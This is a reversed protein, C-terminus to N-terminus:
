RAWSRFRWLQNDDGTAPWQVVPAGSEARKGAVDIALQSHKNVIVMPGDQHEARRAFFWLQNDGGNRDWVQLRAGPEVDFNSVELVKGSAIAILFFHGEGADALQWGDGSPEYDWSLSARAPADGPADRDPEAVLVLSEDLMTPLTFPRVSRFKGKGGFLTIGAGWSLKSVATGVVRGDLAVMEVRVAGAVLGGGEVNFRAEWGEMAEVPLAFEAIGEGSFDGATFGGGLGDFTAIEREPDAPDYFTIGFASAVVGGAVIQVAYRFRFTGPWDTRHAFQAPLARDAM